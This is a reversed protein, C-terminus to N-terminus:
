FVLLTTDLPAQPLERKQSDASLMQYQGEVQIALLRKMINRLSGVARHASVGGPPRRDGGGPPAALAAYALDVAELPCM